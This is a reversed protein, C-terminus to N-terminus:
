HSEEVVGSATIGYLTPASKQDTSNTIKIYLTVMEAGKIEDTWDIVKQLPRTSYQGTDGVSVAVEAPGINVYDIDTKFQTFASEAAAKFQVWVEGTRESKVALGQWNDEGSGRFQDYGAVDILGQDSKNFRISHSFDGPSFIRSAAAEARLRLNPWDAGNFIRGNNRLKALIRGERSPQIRGWDTVIMGLFNESRERQAYRTYLFSGEENKPCGIVKFGKSQLYPNTPFDRCADYQWDCLIIDRSLVELARHFNDPAGGFISGYRMSYQSFDDPHLLMDAWMMTKVGRGALYHQWHHTSELLWEAADTGRCRPCELVSATRKEVNFSSILEDNGINFYEPEFVDLLEDILGSLIQKTLPHRPCVVTSM